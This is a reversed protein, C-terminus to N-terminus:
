DRSRKRYQIMGAVAGRLISLAKSVSRECFLCRALLSNIQLVYDVLFLKFHLQKSKQFFAAMLWRNRAMHYLYTKSYVPFETGKKGRVTPQLITKYVLADRVYVPTTRQSVKFGYLTDDYCIFFSEDPFGVAEVVARQILMGEFTGITVPCHDRGNHFSQDPSHVARATSPDM